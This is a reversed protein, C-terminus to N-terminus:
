REFLVVEGSQMGCVEAQACQVSAARAMDIPAFVSDM